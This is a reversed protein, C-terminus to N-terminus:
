ADPVHQKLKTLWTESQGTVPSESGTASSETEAKRTDRDLATQRVVVSKMDACGPNRRGSFPDAVCVNRAVQLVARCFGSDADMKAKVEKDAMAALRQSSLRLADERDAAGARLELSEVLEDYPARAQLDKPLDGYHQDVLLRLASLGELAVAEVAGFRDLPSGNRLSIHGRKIAEQYISLREERRSRALEVDDLLWRGRHTEDSRSFQLLIEGYPRLDLWRTNQSLYSFVQNRVKRDDAFLGERIAQRLAEERQRSDRVSAADHIAKQAPTLNPVGGVIAEVPSRGLLGLCLAWFFLRRM